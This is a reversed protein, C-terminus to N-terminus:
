LKSIELPCHDLPMAKCGDPSLVPTAMRWVMPPCLDPPVAKCCNSSHVWAARFPCLELTMSGYGCPTVSWAAFTNESTVGEFVQCHCLRNPCRPCVINRLINGMIVPCSIHLLSALLIPSQAAQEWPLSIKCGDLHFSDM